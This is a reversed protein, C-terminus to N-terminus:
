KLMDGTTSTEVSERGGVYVKNTHAIDDDENWMGRWCSVADAWVGEERNAASKTGSDSARLELKPAAAAAPAVHATQQKTIARKQKNIKNAAALLEKRKSDYLAAKVDEFATKIDRKWRASVSAIHVSKQSPLRQKFQAEVYELALSLNSGGLYDPFHKSLPYDQLLAEFLDKKNLLLHVALVYLPM